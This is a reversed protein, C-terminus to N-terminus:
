LKSYQLMLKQWCKLKEGMIDMMQVHGTCMMNITYKLIIEYTLSKTTLIVDLCPKKRIHEGHKLYIEDKM